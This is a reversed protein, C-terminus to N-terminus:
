TKNELLYHLEVWEEELQDHREALTQHLLTKEKAYEAKKYFNEETMESEIQEKEKQVALLQVEIEAIRQTYKKIANKSLQKQQQEEKDIVLSTQEVEEQPLLIEQNFLENAKEYGCDYMYAKGQHIFIMRDAITNLLYRDHSVLIITGSYSKLATEFIDKSAIDLHNTPEDLLMLNSKNLMLKAVAVRSVEGGSLVGIKKHVDEASFLLSGLINRITGNDEGSYEILEELISNKPDLDEHQQKFHTPKINSGLVITGCIPHLQGMITKLITSKGTANDGCIGITEGTHVIMDIGEVLPKDNYGVSLNQFEIAKNTISGKDKFDIKATKKISRKEIIDIKALQKERSEAQRISKERNFSKLRTIIEQQRKIYKQQQKYAREYAHIYEEKQKYYASYNGNYAKVTHNEVEWMISVTKELFYRDHSVIIYTGKYQTLYSELWRISDLDLYNTPEDLLLLDPESILLKALAVRMKQGGSLQKIPKDFEKEDFGLGKLTGITISRYYYGKEAEFSEAKKFYEENLKSLLNLDETQEIKKLLTQLYEEAQILKASAKLTEEIITCSDELGLDQHLYGITLDNKYTIYGSDPELTGSIMKLLTSKGSGNSGILGIHAGEDISLTVQDLIENTGFHKEINNISLLM